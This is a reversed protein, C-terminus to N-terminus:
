FAMREEQSVRLLLQCICFRSVQGRGGRVGSPEPGGVRLCQEMEESPTFLPFSMFGVWPVIAVEVYGWRWKFSRKEM